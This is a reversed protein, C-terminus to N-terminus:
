IMTIGGFSGAVSISSSFHMSHPAHLRCHGEPAIRVCGRPQRQTFPIRLDLNRFTRPIVGTM